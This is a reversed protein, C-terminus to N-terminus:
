HLSLLFLAMVHKTILEEQLSWVGAFSVAYPLILKDQNVILPGTGQLGSTQSVRTVPQCCSCSAAQKCRWPDPVFSSVPLLASRQAIAGSSSRGIFRLSWLSELRGALCRANLHVLRRTCKLIFGSNCITVKSTVVLILM